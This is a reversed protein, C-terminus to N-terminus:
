REGGADIRPVTEPKIRMEPHSRSSSDESCSGCDDLIDSVPPWPGPAPLVSM